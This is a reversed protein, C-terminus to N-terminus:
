RRNADQIVREFFSEMQRAVEIMAYKKADSRIKSCLYIYGTINKNWLDYYNKISQVFTEINESEILRGFPEQLIEQLAPIKFAVTPLGFTQAEIVVLPMNELRSTMVLLHSNAYFEPLKEHPLFGHYIVNEYVKSLIEVLGKLPGDGFIHFQVNHRIDSYKENFQKIIRCLYDIGKESSLRGVFIVNFKDGTCAKFYNNEQLLTVGNPILFVRRCGIKMLFESYRKSVVHHADFLLLLPWRLSVYRLGNYLRLENLILPVSDHHAAIVPKKLLRSVLLITLEHFLQGPCDNFYIIDCLRFLRYLKLLEIQPADLFWFNTEHIFILKVGYKSLDRILKERQIRAEKSLMDGSVFYVKHDRKALEIALNIIAVEAGGYYELSIPTYILVKM